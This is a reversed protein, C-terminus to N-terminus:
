KGSQVRRQRQMLSCWDANALGMASVDSLLQGVLATVPLSVDARNAEEMVLGLDKRMLTTSFGFDFKGDIMTQARNEMMWSTSSGKLMVELVKKPDLGNHEAFALGEALAQGIGAVCIQNSMKTLQGAGAPGMLSARQAYASMVPEVVSWAAEDAGAM